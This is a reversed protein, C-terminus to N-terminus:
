QTNRVAITTATLVGDATTGTVSVSDNVAVTKNTDNRWITSDTKKVTVQKGNGAVVFTDGNVSVVVGSARDGSDLMQPRMSRGEGRQQMMGPLNERGLSPQNAMNHRGGVVVVAAILAAVICGGVLVVGGVMLGIILPKNHRPQEEKVGPKVPEVAQKEKDPM